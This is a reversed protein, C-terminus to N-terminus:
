GAVVKNRGQEKAQYLAKDARALVVDVTDGEAFEAVGFSSTIQVDEGKFHFPCGAITERVKELMKVGADLDTEPLIMVFEEGGFRAIFDTKRIRKNLVKAIVQLVRDGAQHGYTDNIKKFYDIDAIALSLPNGYRQWRQWEQDSRELYAARNPLGTLLDHTAKKRQEELEAQVALSQNELEDIRKLLQKITELLPGDKTIQDRQQHYKLLAQRIEDLQDNVVHKLQELDKASDVSNQMGKVTNELGSSLMQSSDDLKQLSEIGQGLVGRIDGLQSNLEALYNLFEQPNAISLMLDRLSELVGVLEFWRLGQEIQTQIKGAERALREPIVLSDLFSLLVPPIRDAVISYGSDQSEGPVPPLDDPVKLENIDDDDVTAVERNRNTDAETFLETEEDSLTIPADLSESGKDADLNSAVEVAAAEGVDGPESNSGFVKEWLSRQPRQEALLETLDKQLALLKSFTESQTTYCSFQQPINKQLEDIQKRVSKPLETVGLAAVMQEFALKNKQQHSSRMKGLQSALQELQDLPKVVDLNGTSIRGTLQKLVTDVSPDVGFAVKSSQQIADTLMKVQVGHRKKEREADELLKLYKDRWGSATTPHKSPM